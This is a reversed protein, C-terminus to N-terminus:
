QWYFADKEAKFRMGLKRVAERLKLVDDPYAWICGGKSRLDVHRVRLRNLEVIIEDGSRTSAARPSQKTSWLPAASPVVVRTKATSKVANPDAHLGARELTGEFTKEWTEYSLDRHIMRILSRAPPRLNGLSYSSRGLEIAAEALPYAYCANGTESFEVFIWGGIQM